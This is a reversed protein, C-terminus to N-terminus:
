AAQETTEAKWMGSKVNQYYTSAGPASLGLDKMMQAIIDKRVLNAKWGATIMEIARAKKSAPKVESILENMTVAEPKAAQQEEAKVEEVVDAAVAETTEVAAAVVVESLNLTMSPAVGKTMLDKAQQPHVTITTAEDGVKALVLYEAKDGNKMTGTKEALAAIKYETTNGTRDTHVVTKNIQAAFLTAIITSM